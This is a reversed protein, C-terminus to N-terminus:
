NQGIKATSRLFAGCQNLHALMAAAAPTLGRGQQFCLQLNREAWSDAVPVAVVSPIASATAFRAATQPILAIGLGTAVWRCAADFSGVQVRVDLTAGHSAAVEMLFAHIGSGAHLSVFPENLVDRLHIGAAASMPHGVPLLLVLRSDRYPQIALSEPFADISVVGIEAEGAAIARVIEPCPGEELSVRVEPHMQLFGALDEPLFGNVASSNALLRVQRGAYSALDAELQGLRGLLQRAHRVVAQGATTPILGRPHRTFLMVRLSSELNALRCSASSPALCLSAAARSLSGCAAIAAVLKLDALDYSM